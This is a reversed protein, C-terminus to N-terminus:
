KKLVKKVQSILINEQNKWYAELVNGNPYFRHQNWDSQFRVPNPASFDVFIAAQHPKCHLKWKENQQIIMPVGLAMCEYMKTPVCDETSKNPQYPLLAADAQLFENLLDIHPVPEEKGIWHFWTNKQAEKAFWSGLERTAIKGIMTLKINMGASRLKAVWNYAEKAGYVSSITGTYVFHLEKRKTKQWLSIGIDKYKNELITYKGHAFRFESAYCTEALFFHDVVFRSLWEISRITLALPWKVLATYNNQYIINRFYNERVDYILPIKKRLAYWCAAPILEVAHVIILDPAIEQLKELFLKSSTFRSKATRAFKFIPHFYIVSSNVLPINSQYGIVHMEFQNCLTQAFKEFMRTDDIPKLVSALAIKPLQHSM